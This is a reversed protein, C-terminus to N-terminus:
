GSFHNLWPQTQVHTGELLTETVEAKAALNAIEM